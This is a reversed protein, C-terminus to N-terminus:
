LLYRTKTLNLIREAASLDPADRDDYFQAVAILVAQKVQLPVVAPAKTKYTIKVPAFYEGSVKPEPFYARPVPLTSDVAVASIDITNTAGDFYSVEVLSDFNARILEAYNSGDVSYSALVTQPRLSQWLYTEAFDLAADICDRVKADDFGEDVHLQALADAFSVITQEGSELIQLGQFKM